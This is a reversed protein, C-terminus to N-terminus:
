SANLSTSAAIAALFHHDQIFCLLGLFLAVFRVESYTFFFFFLFLADMGSEM